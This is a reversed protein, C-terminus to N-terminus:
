RRWVRVAQKVVLPLDAPGAVYPAIWKKVPTSRGPGTWYTREHDGVIWRHTYERAAGEGTAADVPSTLIERLTVVRVLPVDKRRLASRGRTDLAWSAPRTTAITPEGSILMVAALIREALADLEPITGDLAIEVLPCITVSWMVRPDQSQAVARRDASYYTLHLRDSVHWAIADIAITTIKDPRDVDAQWPLRDPIGGDFVMLGSRDTSDQAITWEPMTTSDRATVSALTTMDPTIWWLSAHALAAGDDWLVRDLHADVDALEDAPFTPDPGATRAAHITDARRRRNHALTDRIDPLHVATLPRM